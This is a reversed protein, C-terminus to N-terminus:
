SKMAKSILHDRITSVLLLSAYFLAIFSGLLLATGHIPLAPFFLSGVILIVLGISGLVGSVVCGNRLVKQEQVPCRLTPNNVVKREKKLLLFGFILLVVSSAALFLGVILFALFAALNEYLRSLCSLTLGYVFCIGSCAFFYCASYVDRLGLDILDLEKNSKQKRM